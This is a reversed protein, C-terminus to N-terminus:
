TMKGSVSRRVIEVSATKPPVPSRIQLVDQSPVHEDPACVGRFLCMTLLNFHGSLVLKFELM